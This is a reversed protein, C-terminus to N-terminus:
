RAPADRSSWHIASIVWGSPTRTLVMLEAGASNVPKGRFRGRTTGTAATWAVNGEVKVQVPSRTEKMARTFAIDAALHHSRYERLSEVSGSEMIIVNPSLLALAAASDGEALADHYRKVAGAVAASDSAVQAGAPVCPRLAVGITLSLPLLLAPIHM